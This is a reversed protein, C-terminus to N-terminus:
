PLINQEIENNKTIFEDANILAGASMSYNGPFWGGGLNAAVWDNSMAWGDGASTRRNPSSRGYTFRANLLYRKAGYM